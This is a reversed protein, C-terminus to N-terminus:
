SKRKTMGPTQGQRQASEKPTIELLIMYRVWPMLLTPYYLIICFLLLRYYFTFLTIILHRNSLNLNLCKIFPALLVFLLSIGTLALGKGMETLLQAWVTGM